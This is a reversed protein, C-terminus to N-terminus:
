LGTSLGSLWVLWVLATLLKKYINESVIQFKPDSSRQKKKEVTPIIM